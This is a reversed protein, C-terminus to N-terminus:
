SSGTLVKNIEATMAATYTEQAQAQSSDQVARVFPHAPTPKGSVKHGARSLARAHPARHGRDVINAIWTYKGFDVIAAAPSDATASVVRGRVNGKLTGLPLSNGGQHPGVRGTPTAQALRPKIESAVKRLAKREIDKFQSALSELNAINQEWDTSM